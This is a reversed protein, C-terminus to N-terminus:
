QETPMFLAGEVPRDDTGIGGVVLTGFESDTAVMPFATRAPLAGEEDDEDCTELQSFQNTAPDFIEVCAIATGGNAWPSKSSTVGGVILVRGDPLLTASHMARRNAMSGTTEWEGEHFRYATSSAEITDAYTLNSTSGVLGGTVLVSGDALTTMGPFMLGLPLAETEQLNGATSVLYCTPVVDFTNGEAYTIGGCILVGEDGLRASAHAILDTESTGVVSSQQTMPDYSFIKRIPLVYEPDTASWGGSFVVTGNTDEVAQHLFVSPGDALEEVTDTNPDWLYMGPDVNENDGYDTSGGIILVKGSDDHNGTLLTASHGVRGTEGSDMVPLVGVNEFVLDSTPPAVNFAMVDSIGSTSALLGFRSGGFM